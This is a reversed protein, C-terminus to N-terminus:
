KLTREIRVFCDLNKSDPSARRLNLKTVTALRSEIEIRHLFRVMGETTTTASLEVVTSNGSAMTPHLPRLTEIDLLGDAMLQVDAIFDVGSEYRSFESEGAQLRKFESIIHDRDEYLDRYETILRSMNANSQDLQELELRVPEYVLAWYAVVAAAALTITILM